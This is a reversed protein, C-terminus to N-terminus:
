NKREYLAILFYPRRPCVFKNIGDCIFVIPNMKFKSFTSNECNPCMVTRTPPINFWGNGRNQRIKLLWPVYRRWGPGFETIKLCNFNPFINQLREATFSQVHYSANFVSDCKPCKLTNKALMEHNPVTILIYKGASRQLEAVAKELVENELHELVESALILDISNLKIPLSTIDSNVKLNKVFKLAAISRDIGVIEFHQKLANTILGNGCGVDVIFKVDDPIFTLLVDIKDQMNKDLKFEQWNERIEYLKKNDITDM